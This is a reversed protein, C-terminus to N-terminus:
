ENILDIWRQNEMLYGYTEEEAMSKKLNKKIEEVFSPDTEKFTMHEFMPSKTFDWITDVSGLVSEMWAITGEVDKEKMLLDLGYSNEHYVGFESVRAVEKQKRVYYAAKEMDEEELVMLYLMQLGMQQMQFESFLLEELAKYAEEKKGRKWDLDAQMRKREPNQMSFYTLCKEAEDFNEKRMYFSFMANAAGSRIMEEKSELAREYWHLIWTDYQIGDKVDHFLRNADLILAVQWLLKECRPYEELLRKGKLFAEEYTSNKLTEDLERIYRGIEEETLDERYSLLEDVSIHFMRAIPALLAIDPTSNGNEWKNVAPATVGLRNAMEEQTLNAEKRYKRIKKGIEM